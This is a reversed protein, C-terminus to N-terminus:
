RLFVGFKKRKKKRLVSIAADRKKVTNGAINDSICGSKVMM